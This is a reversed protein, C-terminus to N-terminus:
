EVHLMVYVAVHQVQTIIIDRISVIGARFLIVDM